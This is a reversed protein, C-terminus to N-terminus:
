GVAPASNPSLRVIDETTFAPKLPYLKAYVDRVFVLDAPVDVTWRLNALSQHRAVGALRFTEPRRYIYPTVHEREYPEDAREAAEILAGARIVEADLGHPYTRAGLTNSTYDAGVEHHHDIVEDILEPDALPCDATLRIVTTARPRRALAARFRDLVDNLSGRFVELGLIECYAALPDDSAETSTAVMLEDIRNSRRLREVQRDIMPEGLVPAMVKGPLRSSSMRAQLIALNL